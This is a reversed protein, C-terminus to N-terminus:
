DVGDLKFTLERERLYLLVVRFLGRSAPEFDEERIARKVQELRAFSRDIVTALSLKETDTHSNKQSSTVHTALKESIRAMTIARMESFVRAVRVRYHFIIADQLPIKQASALMHHVKRKLEYATLPTTRDDLFPHEDSPTSSPTAGTATTAMLHSQAQASLDLGLGLDGLRLNREPSRVHVAYRQPITAAIAAKVLPQSELRDAASYAQPVPEPEVLSQPEVHEPRPMPVPEVVPVGRMPIPEVLPGFEAERQAKSMGAVKREDIPVGVITDTPVGFNALADDHAHGHASQADFSCEPGGIVINPTPSTPSPTPTASHPGSASSSPSASHSGSESSGHGNGSSGQGHVQAEPSRRTVGEGSNGAGANGTPTDAGEEEMAEADPLEPQGALGLGLERPINAYEVGAIVNLTGPKIHFGVLASPQPASLGDQAHVRDSLSPWGEAAVRNSTTGMAAAKPPTSPTSPRSPSAAVGDIGELAADFPSDRGSHRNSNRSSSRSRSRVDSGHDGGVRYGMAAVRNAIPDAAFIRSGPPTFVRRM